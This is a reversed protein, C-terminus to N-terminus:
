SNALLQCGHAFPCGGIKWEIEHTDNLFDPHGHPLNHSIHLVCRKVTEIEQAFVNNGQVKVHDNGPVDVYERVCRAIFKHNPDEGTNANLDVLDKSIIIDKSDGQVDVGIIVNAANASASNLIANEDILSPSSDSASSYRHIAAVLHTSSIKVEMIRILYDWRQDDVGM